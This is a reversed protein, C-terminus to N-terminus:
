LGFAARDGLEDEDVTEAVMDAAVVAEEGTEGLAANEGDAVILPTKTL